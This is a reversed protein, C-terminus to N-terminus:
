VRGDPAPDGPHPEAVSRSRTLPRVHERRAARLARFRFSLYPKASADRQRATARTSAAEIDAPNPVTRSGGFGAPPIVRDLAQVPPTIQPDSGAFLRGSGTPKLVALIRDLYLWAADTREGDETCYAVLAVLAAPTTPLM